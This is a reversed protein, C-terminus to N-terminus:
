KNIIRIYWQDSIDENNFAREFGKLTYVQGQEESVDMFEEDSLSWLSEGYWEYPNIVYVKYEMTKIKLETKHTSLYVIEM